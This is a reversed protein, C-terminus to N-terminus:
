LAGSIRQTTLPGRGFFFFFSILIVEVSFAVILDLHLRSAAIAKSSAAQPPPLAPLAEFVPSLLTVEPAPVLPPLVFVPVSLPPLLPLLAVVPPLPLPLSSVVGAGVLLGGTM